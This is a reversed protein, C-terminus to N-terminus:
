FIDMSITCNTVKIITFNRIKKLYERDKYKVFFTCRYKDQIKYIPAESPGIIHLGEAGFNEAIIRTIEAAERHVLNEDPSSLVASLVAGEPPYGLLARYKIEEEYFSKYDQNGAAIIASNDPNYTQIVVKGPKDARGARGAAQTILEFTVESARYDDSYLSLDAALIGVLTVNPFDHGKVIMQTGVLIDAKGSNFKSIIKSHGAKGSTTDADMRLVRAEPFAEKVMEEIKQTGIGFGAIYPSGCSPCATPMFEEHGCYHCILKGNRHKKLSVDCHPCKITHGCSRCTIASSYGRRNLFLMIQEKNALRARIDEALEMSFISKNGARFEERLDVISVSPLSSEKIAREKLEFLGFEGEIAKKYDDILPTASGLVVGASAIRGRAIAVETSKYRPTTESFYASDHEEDVIILGLREFPTFVASRPGIIVDIKGEEAKKFINYREGASLRSNVVGVRDRYKANFRQLNQLTLSIEPILLITQKGRAIMEDILEMYVATKGSGTVGQLLAPKPYSELIGAVAAKQEDNLEFDDVSIDEIENQDVRQKREAIKRKSPLVTKLAQNMTCGYEDKMFAALEILESTISASKEEICIIDKIKDEEFNTEDTLELVYGTLKRNGFPVQVKVGPHITGSLEEPVKYSFTKDLKQLSIDVIVNAYKM